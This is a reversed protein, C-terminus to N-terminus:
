SAAATALFPRAAEIAPRCAPAADSLITEPRSYGTWVSLTSTAAWWPDSLARELVAPAAERACDILPKVIAQPAGAAALKENIETQLPGTLFFSILAVIFDMM